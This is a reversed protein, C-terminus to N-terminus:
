IDIIERKKSPTVLWVFLFGFVAPVIGVGIIAFLVQAIENPFIIALFFQGVSDILYHAIIGPILSNTRIVMYGFVLGLLGAYFAQPIVIIAPMGSIINTLHFLGFLTSVIVMTFNKSYKRENLATIVGRFSVEEWIGPILMYIFVLWGLYPTTVPDGFIIDLDWIQTGFVNGLFFVSLFFILTVGIGILVNRILNGGTTLRISKTFDSFTEDNNPLKFGKPIIYLWLFGLIGLIVIINIIMVALIPLLQFLLTFPLLVFDPVYFFCFYILLLIITGFLPYKRFTARIGIMKRKGFEKPFMLKLTVFLISLCVLSIVLLTITMVLMNFFVLLIFGIVIFGICMLFQTSLLFVWKWVKHHVNVEELVYKYKCRGFLRLKMQFMVMLFVLVIPYWAIFLGIFPVFAPNMLLIIVPLFYSILQIGIMLILKAKMQDRPNLPLSALISAGSDEVNLFGSVLMIAIIPFYVVIITWLIMFDEAIKGIGDASAVGTITLIMILPLAIPMFIFMLMQIDKTAISLDKRIYAKVPTRNKVKVEIEEDVKRGSKIEISSSSTVSRMAKVARRYFLWSITAYLFLGILTIIWQLSSFRSPEVCMTLLFSPSFPFPILSLIINLSETNEMSNAVAYFTDVSSIVMNLIMSMSFILIFYGLMTILRIITARKTNIEQVRFVRSLKQSIIVLVSFAFVVNILSVFLSVIFLLINQTLIVMIIPFAFTLLILGVDVTRFVTLFGLKNLRNKSLPLTEFWRFAEGTMLASVNMMGLILIYGIQMAFFVSLILSGAFLGANVNPSYGGFFEILTLYNFVPIIIIMSLLFGYAVKLGIAQNKISRKNKKYREMLKTQNAGSSQVQAEMVIELNTYKALKYLSIKQDTM